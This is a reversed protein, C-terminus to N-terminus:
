IHSKLSKFHSTSHFCHEFEHDDGKIGNYIVMEGLFKLPHKSSRNGYSLERNEYSMVLFHHPGYRSTRKAGGVSQKWWEIRQNKLPSNHFNFVCKLQKWNRYSM